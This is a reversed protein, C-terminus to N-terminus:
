WIHITFTEWPGVAGRNANVVSGGGGEAVVYNGGGGSWGNHAQLSIADGSGITGGGNVREIRFTEWTFAATRNANVVDGGGGEAVVFYGGVTQINVLDGSELAGGNLDILTFTEWAGIAGRNANVVGGGGGEAVVFYGGISQFATTYGQNNGPEVCNGLCFASNFRNRIVNGPQPGFGHAFNIGIEPLRHCYSMITGGNTPLPPRPKIFCFFSVPFGARVGCDDIMTSNGNWVCEHTHRSGMLHGLEHTVVNVNWSYTPVQAFFTFLGSYSM